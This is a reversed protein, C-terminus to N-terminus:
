NFSPETLAANEFERLDVEAVESVGPEQMFVGYLVDVATMTTKNHTVVIFQSKSSFERIINNFKRINADDLPADVEDFICFPAPKFLYLSFLLAIATLAKEGGSLQSITKPRKGKPKAIILIKSELPNDPEELLIDCTDGETFLTTFVKKFHERIVEFALLFLETATKEIESITKKLSREAEIIDNKQHEITQYRKSMEDHAEIALTNVEGFNEVKNRLREVKEGLSHEDEESRDYALYDKIEIGFEIKLRDSISKKKYDIDTQQEKLQNILYQSKGLQNKKESIVNELETITNREEFYSREIEDLESEFESKLKYMLVLENEIQNERDLMMEIEAQMKTLLKTNDELKKHLNRNDSSLYDHDKELVSILNQQKLM